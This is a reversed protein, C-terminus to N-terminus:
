SVNRMWLCDAHRVELIVTKCELFAMKEKLIRRNKKHSPMKGTRFILLCHLIIDTLM